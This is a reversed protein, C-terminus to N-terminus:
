YYLSRYVSPRHLSTHAYSVPSYLHSPEAEPEASRKYIHRGYAPLPAYPLYPLYGRSAEAEAEPEASRKYIHRGYAPLPAYPLYPLYGRSAEAEAEPEASRKHFRHGHYGGYAVPFPSYSGHSYLRSAEADAARKHLTHVSHGYVGYVPTRIVARVGYLTSPEADASRKHYHTPFSPGYSYRPYLPTRYGSHPIVSPEAERKEVESACVAAALLVFALYKM